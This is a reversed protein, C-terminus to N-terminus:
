SRFRKLIVIRCNKLFRPLFLGGGGDGLRFKILLSSTGTKEKLLNDEKVEM